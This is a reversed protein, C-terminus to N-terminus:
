NKECPVEEPKEYYGGAGFNAKVFVTYGRSKAREIDDETYCIQGNRFKKLFDQRRLNWDVLENVVEDAEPETLQTGFTFCKFNSFCAFAGSGVMTCANMSMIKKWTDDNTLSENETSPIFYLNVCKDMGRTKFLRVTFFTGLMGDRFPYEKVIQGRRATGEANYIQITM